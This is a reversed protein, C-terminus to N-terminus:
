TCWQMIPLSKLMSRLLGSIMANFERPLLVRCHPAPLYKSRRAARELDHKKM